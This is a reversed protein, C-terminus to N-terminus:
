AMRALDTTVREGNSQRAFRVHDWCSVCLHRWELGDATEFQVRVMAQADGADCIRYLAHAWRDCRCECHDPRGPGQPDAPDQGASM